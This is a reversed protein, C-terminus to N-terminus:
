GGVNSLSSVKIATIKTDFANTSAGFTYCTLYATGPSTYTHVVQLAVGDASAGTGNAEMLARSQDFDSGTNLRCRYLVDFTSTNDLWTKANIVYHGKAPITLTLVTPDQGGVQTQTSVAGDHFTSYAATRAGPALDKKSLSGNKVRDGGLTGPKVDVNQITKDKIQASTVQVAAYSTGGLAVVLALTATVNAYSVHRRLRKM